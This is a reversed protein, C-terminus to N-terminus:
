KIYSFILHSNIQCLFTAICRQLLKKKLSLMIFNCWSLQPGENEKLSVNEHCVVVFLSCMDMAFFLTKVLALM